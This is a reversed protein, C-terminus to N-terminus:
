APSTADRSRSERLRVATDIFARLKTQSQMRKPFYLFLGPTRRVVKPLVAVLRGAAVEDAITLDAAYILGAGRLAMSLLSLSDSVAITERLPAHVTRTGKLFEWRQLAASTPYRYQICEHTALDEPRTPTGCRALYAPSAYVRWTVDRTLRIAVMDNEVTSGFRVGADLGKAQLDVIADDARVDISIQPFNRRFQAVIPEVVLPLAIRPATLRLHGVPQGRFLNLAELAEAIQDAAPRVRLHFAQGAETLAVQRSTRQFLPIGLRLELRRITQSIAATSVGLARAARTFSRHQEVSLFASLGDFNPDRM